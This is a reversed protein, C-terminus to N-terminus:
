IGGFTGQIGGFTGQIGEFTGQIGEFTRQIGGHIPKPMPSPKTSGLSCRTPRLTWFEKM